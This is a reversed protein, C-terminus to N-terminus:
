FTKALVNRDQFFLRWIHHSTLTHGVEISVQVPQRDGSKTHPVGETDYQAQYVVSAEDRTQQELPFVIGGINMNSGRASVPLKAALLLSVTPMTVPPVAVITPSVVVHKLLVSPSKIQLSDCSVFFVLLASYCHRTALMM